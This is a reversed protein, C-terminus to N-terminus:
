IKGAAGSSSASSVDPIMLSLTEEMLEASNPYRKGICKWEQTRRIKGFNKIVYNTVLEKLDSWKWAWGFLIDGATEPTLDRYIKAMARQRLESILYKDAIAFVELVNDRAVESQNVPSARGTYLFRLMTLFTTHNFDTVEINYRIPSYTETEQTTSPTCSADPTFKRPVSQQESCTSGQSQIMSEAWQQRFLRAFYMSRKSLLSSSAYIQHGDINFQVDVIDRRNLQEEWASILDNSTSTVPFPVPIKQSQWQVALFGVGIIIDNPLKSRPFLQAAGRQPKKFTFKDHTVLCKKLYPVALGNRHDLVILDPTPDKLYIMAPLIHQRRGVNTSTSEEKNLLAVLFLSCYAPHEVNVPIFKLQWFVDSSTGFPPSYVPDNLQKVNNITFEFTLRSAFPNNNVSNDSPVIDNDM